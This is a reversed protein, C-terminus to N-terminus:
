CYPDRPNGPDDQFVGALADLRTIFDQRDRKDIFIRRREIGRGM